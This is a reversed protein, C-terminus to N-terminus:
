DAGTEIGYTRDTAKPHFFSEQCTLAQLHKHSPGKREPGHGSFQNKYVLILPLSITGATGNGDSVLVGDDRVADTNFRYDGGTVSFSRGQVM